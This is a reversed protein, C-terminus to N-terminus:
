GGFHLQYNYLAGILNSDNYFACTDVEVTPFEFPIVAYLENLQERIKELLLPQKSIGGGICVKEPDMFCQINFIQVAINKAVCELADICDQDGQEIMEFIKKGNLEEPSCQKKMAVQMILATTSGKMAFVSEFGPKEPNTLLFSVEGSFFHKGKMLQRNHIFGGGIGTGLILVAGDNCDKLNGKWLEALAACKGDNEVSVNTDIRSKIADIINTGANYSLAGPTYVHGTEVDINGPLSIAIGDVEGGHRQYVSEIVDIFHEQSDLPTVENGKEYINANDDMLAYKIFTGGVDFVLKKM